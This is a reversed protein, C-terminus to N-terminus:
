IITQYSRQWFCGFVINGFHSSVRLLKLYRVIEKNEDEAVGNAGLMELRKAKLNGPTIWGEDDDDGDEEIGLIFIFLTFYFLINQFIEDFQWTYLFCFRFPIKNGYNIQGVTLFFQKLSWSFLKFNSALPRSNAFTKLDSSCNIWVTYTWFM